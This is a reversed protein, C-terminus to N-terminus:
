QHKDRTRHHQMFRTVSYDSMNISPVQGCIIQALLQGTRASGTLGVHQHGFGLFIGSIHPLQDIIPISDTPAPRHGMWRTVDSYRLDPIVQEIGEKLLDFPAESGTNQVGGFEVAGAIRLRGEMPTLIFKKNPVLTPVRPMKNADWLDLHYGSEAEVPIKVGLEKTLLPSWAGATIAVKAAAVFDTDTRIGTVCGNEHSIGIVHERVLTGGSSTFHDVLSALYSGPDTIQGHGDLAALFSYEAAFVTDYSDLNEGEIETWTFGNDRRIDWPLHDKAYSARDKFLVAFDCPM